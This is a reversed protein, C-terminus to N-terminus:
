GVGAMNRSALRKMPRISFLCVLITLVDAAPQALYIGTVGLLKPLSLIFPVYFLGQRILSLFLGYRSAGITQYTITMMYCLGFAPYLASQSILLNAGYDIVAPNNSFLLILPRSLLIYVAEVVIALLLSVKLSFRVSTHFREENKAGFACAAVPQCCQM